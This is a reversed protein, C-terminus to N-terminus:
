QSQLIARGQAARRLPAPLSPSLFAGGGPSSEELSISEIGLISMAAELAEKVADFTGQPNDGTIQVTISKKDPSMSVVSITDPVHGLREFATKVATQVEGLSGAKTTEGEDSRAEERHSAASTTIMAVEGLSKFVMVQNEFVLGYVLLSGDNCNTSCVGSPMTPCGNFPMFGVYRWGYLQKKGCPDCGIVAEYFGLPVNRSAVSMKVVPAVGRGSTGEPQGTAARTLNAIADINEPLKTDLDQTIETLNWGDELKIGVNATGIGPIVRVSYEESFDPMYKLEINVMEDPPNRPETTTADGEVTTTGAPSVFLYPKPRYFRVGKNREGPNKTVYAGPMCGVLGISAAIIVALHVARM